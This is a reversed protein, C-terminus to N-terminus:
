KGYLNVTEVFDLELYDTLKKLKDIRIKGNKVSEVLNQGHCKLAKGLIPQTIGKRKMEAWIKFYM